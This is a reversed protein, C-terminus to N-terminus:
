RFVFTSLAQWSVQLNTNNFSMCWIFLKHNKISILHFNLANEQYETQNARQATSNEVPYTHFRFKNKNHSFILLLCRCIILQWQFIRIGNKSYIKMLSKQHSFLQRLLFSSSFFISQFTVSFFKKKKSSGCKNLTNVKNESQWFRTKM